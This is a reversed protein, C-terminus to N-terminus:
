VTLLGAKLESGPGGEVIHLYYRKSQDREISVVSDTVKSTPDMALASARLPKFNVPPGGGSGYLHKNGAFVSNTLTYKRVPGQFLVASLNGSMVNNRFEFDEGIGCVWAGTVDTSRLPIDCPVATLM